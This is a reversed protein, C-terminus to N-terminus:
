GHSGRLPRTSLRRRIPLFCQGSQRFRAVCTEEGAKRWRAGRANLAMALGRQLAVTGPQLETLTQFARVSLDFDGSQLGANGLLLWAEIEGPRRRLLEEAIEIAIHPSKVLAM